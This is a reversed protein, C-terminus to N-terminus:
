PSLIAAPWHHQGAAMQDSPLARATSNGTRNRRFFAGAGFGLALAAVVIGIGGLWRATSDQDDLKRWLCTDDCCNNRHISM